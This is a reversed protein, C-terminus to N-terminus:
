AYLGYYVLTALDARERSFIGFVGCEERVHDFDRTMTWFGSCSRPM